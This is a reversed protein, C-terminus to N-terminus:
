WWPPTSPCCWPSWRKRLVTPMAALVYQSICSAFSGGVYSALLGSLTYWFLARDKLLGVAAVADEEEADAGRKKCLFHIFVLPLAACFAALWFPLQLSYM